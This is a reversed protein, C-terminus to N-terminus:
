QWWLGEGLVLQMAKDDDASKMGTFRVDKPGARDCIMNAFLYSNLCLQFTKQRRMIVRPRRTKDACDPKPVNIKLNGIGIVVWSPDQKKDGAKKEGDKKDDQTDDSKEDDKGGSTKQPSAKEEEGTKEEGPTGLVFLKARPLQFATTEDEEGTCTEVEELSVVADTKKVQVEKEADEDDGGGSEAEAGEEDDKKTPAAWGASSVDGFGKAKGTSGFISSGTTAAGGFGFTPGTGFTFPTTGSSVNGFTFPKTGSSSGFGGGSGLGSFAHLAAKKPSEEKSGEAADASKM